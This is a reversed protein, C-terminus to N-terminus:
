RRVLRERLRHWIVGHVERANVTVGREHTGGRELCCPDGRLRLVWATTAELSVGIPRRRSDENIPRLAQHLADNRRGRMILELGRGDSRDLFGIAPPERSDV